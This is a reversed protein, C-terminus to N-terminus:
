PQPPTDPIVRSDSRFVHYDSFSADNIYKRVEGPVPPAGNAAPVSQSNLAISRVPCIYSRDGISVPGYEVV